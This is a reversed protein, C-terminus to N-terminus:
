NRHIQISRRNRHSKLAFRHSEDRLQRLLLMAASDQVSNVPDKVGPVFVEEHEKALACLAVCDLAMKNANKNQSDNSPRVGVKLM